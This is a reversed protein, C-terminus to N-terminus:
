VGYNAEKFLNLQDKAPTYLKVERSMYHTKKDTWYSTYVGTEKIIEPTNLAELVSLRYQWIKLRAIQTREECKKIHSLIDGLAHQYDHCANCLDRLNSPDDIGGHARHIIHHKEIRKGSTCRYCAM